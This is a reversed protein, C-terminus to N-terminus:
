YKTITKQIIRKFANTLYLQPLLYDFYEVPYHNRVGKILGPNINLVVGYLKNIFKLCYEDTYINKKSKNIQKLILNKTPIIINYLQNYNNDLIICTNLTNGLYNNINDLNILYVSNYKVKTNHNKLLKNKILNIIFEIEEKKFNCQYYELNIHLYKVNSMYENYFPHNINMINKKNSYKYNPLYKKQLLKLMNYDFEFEDSNLDIKGDYNLLYKLQEIFIDPSLIKYYRELFTNNTNFNNEVLFYNLSNILSYIEHKFILIRMYPNLGLHNNVNYKNYVLKYTMDFIYYSLTNIDSIITKKFVNVKKVLNIVDLNM